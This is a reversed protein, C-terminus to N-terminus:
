RLVARGLPLGRGGTAASLANCFLYAGVLVFAFVAFGGAKTLGASAQTTGLLVLLLAADVLGFLITFVLPLRLSFLTLMVIVCLWTTLFLEQTRVADAAVVGFWGHTLGLVLAAYSLWFGAFTGFVAAVANQALAAAWVAAIVQGIGTATMIIPISAGVAAAPVFGTLVLGLAISGAIFTPVGIVAPDGALAPVEQEIVDPAEQVVERTATESM